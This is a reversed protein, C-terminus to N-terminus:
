SAGQERRIQLTGDKLALVINGKGATPIPNQKRMNGLTKGLDKADVSLISYLPDLLSDNPLRDELVLFDSARWEAPLGAPDTEEPLVLISVSGTCIRLATHDGVALSEVFVANWLTTEAHVRFSNWSQACPLEAQLFGDLCDTEQTVLRVPHFRAMLESCNVAEEREQTLPQLYDLTRIGQGALYRSVAGSSYGGCGLVAAHGDKTIVVAEATGTDLVAVRTVGRMSLQHSFIGTMLLIASLLATTKWLLNKQSLLMAAAALLLTGSLWLSVFGYYTSISANPIQALLHSSVQMYKALLGAVLAFPMALFSQPLLANLVAAIAAFNMLLTSPVLELLNSLPAILSVSGFFVIGIPLTFFMAAFTTALTGNIGRLLSDFRKLCVRRAYWQNLFSSIRGAYLILGLTAFFSLLLGVDAAAYPNMGGILLVAAGLSNLSDPQRSLLIGFLYLICMIGSRTVSPVFCTVAMFAFVGGAAFLAALRKPVKLFLLLLLILEAMTSMHLGSVSLIHSIGITRFDSSVEQSLGTQEGFVVGNVLSAQEPPLMERMSKLLAKRLNLAYRYFSHETPPLVQVPEYEYRYAFLLIGKSAYYTRSSYGDGGSPLFLHMKTRIRSYPQVNLANQCSLRLKIQRPTDPLSCEDVRIIYYTHGYQRYPLECVTGTIVADKEALAQAPLVTSQSYAAFSGFALSMTLLALPFVGTARLKPLFLTLVFGVLCGCALPMAWGSGIFVAVALTLLYCFGVLALPRKM